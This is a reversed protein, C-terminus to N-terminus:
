TRPRAHFSTGCRIVTLRKLVALVSVSLCIIVGISILVFNSASSHAHPAQAQPHAGRFVGAFGTTFKTETTCGTIGTEVVFPTSGAGATSAPAKGSGGGMIGLLGCGAFGCM